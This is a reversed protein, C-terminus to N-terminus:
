FRKELGIMVLSSGPAPEVDFTIRVPSPASAQQRNYSRAARAADIASLLHNLLGLGTVIVANDRANSSARLLSDFEQRSRDEDWEWFDSMSYLEANERYDQLQQRNYDEMSLYLSIDEYYNVSKGHPDIGAHSAAYLQYDEKKWDSYLRLGCYTSVIATETGMFLIGRGPAQAYFQGTGPLLLSLLVAKPVSKKRPSSSIVQVAREPFSMGAPDRSDSSFCSTEGRVLFVDRAPAAWGSGATMAMCCTLLLLITATKM